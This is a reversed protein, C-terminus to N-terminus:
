ANVPAPSALAANKSDWSREGRLRVTSNVRLLIREQSCITSSSTTKTPGGLNLGWNCAAASACSMTISGSPMRFLLGCGPSGTNRWSRRTGSFGESPSVWASMLRVGPREPTPSNSTIAPLAEDSM